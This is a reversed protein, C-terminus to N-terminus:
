RGIARKRRKVFVFALAALTILLPMLVINVVKLRTGLSEIREDLSHRVQRLQNRIQVKKQTFSTLEAQQEPSLIMETGKSKGSQLETLRRETENLQQQLEKETDHFKIEAARKMEDVTTFPRQSTARGRVSILDSSGALNDVANIFFDGNNAFANMLKQGLFQQVQVWL